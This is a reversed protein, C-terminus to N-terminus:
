GNQDQKALYGGANQVGCGHPVCFCCFLDSSCV